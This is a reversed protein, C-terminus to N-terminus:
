DSTKRTKASCVSVNFDLRRVTIAERDASREHLQEWASAPIVSGISSGHLNQQGARGTEDSSVDGLGRPSGSVLDGADVHQKGLGMPCGRRQGGPNHVAVDTIRDQQILQQGIDVDHAM